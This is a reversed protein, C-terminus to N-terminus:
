KQNKAYLKSNKNSQKTNKLQNLINMEDKAGFKVVTDYTDILTHMIYQECSPSNSM